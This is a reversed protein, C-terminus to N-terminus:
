NIGWKLKSKKKDYRIICGPGLEVGPCGQTNDLWDNQYAEKFCQYIISDAKVRIGYPYPCNEERYTTISKVTDTKTVYESELHPNFLSLIAIALAIAALICARKNVIITETM